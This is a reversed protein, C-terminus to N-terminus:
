QRDREWSKTKSNYVMSEGLGLGYYVIYTSDNQKLYYIPGEEKEAIGIDKLNNPLYGKASKYGEIKTVIEEGIQQKKDTCSFFLGFCLTFLWYCKPNMLEILSQTQM